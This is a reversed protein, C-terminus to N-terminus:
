SAEGALWARRKTQAPVREATARYGSWGYAVYEAYRRSVGDTQVIRHRSDSRRCEFCNGSRCCDRMVRWNGTEHRVREPAKPSTNLRVIKAAEMVRVREARWGQAKLSKFTHGTGLWEEEIVVKWAARASTAMIYCLCPRKGKQRQVLAWLTEDVTMITDDM